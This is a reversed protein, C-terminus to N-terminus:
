GLFIEISDAAEKLGDITSAGPDIQNVPLHFLTIMLKEHLLRPDYKKLRIRSSSLEGSM